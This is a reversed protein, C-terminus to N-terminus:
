HNHLYKAHKQDFLGKKALFVLVVANLYNLFRYKKVLANNNNNSNKIGLCSFPFSWYVYYLFISGKVNM